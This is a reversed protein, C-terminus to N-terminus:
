PARLELIARTLERRVRYVTGADSPNQLVERVAGELMASARDAADYRGESRAKAIASRLQALYEYDEVGERWAEWRRSPVIAEGSLDVGEPKGQPGYVLGYRGSLWSFDDWASAGPEPDSYTWIGCGRDGRHFARWMHLRFYALPPKGKSPRDCDYSWVEAIRKRANEEATGYRAGFVLDRPCWIDLFPTIRRLQDGNKLGRSNAFIRLKPDVQEKLFRALTEFEPALSEDFPYMAFDDYDLGRAKLHDVWRTVWEKVYDLYSRGNTARLGPVQDRKSGLGWYFLFMEGGTYRDLAADHKTFDILLKGNRDLTPMPLASSWFLVDVNIYHARLDAIAEAQASKTVDSREIYHYAFTKLTTRDPFQIPAVTIRGQMLETPVDTGAADVAHWDIAFGYAAPNLSAAHVTLWLQAPQGPPIVFGDQPVRILADGTRGTGGRADVFVPTRLTVFSEAAVTSGDEARLPTLAPRVRLPAVDGNFLTVAASEYEGQWLFLDLRNLDASPDATTSGGSAVPASPAVLLAADPGDAISLTSMPNAAQVLLRRGSRTRWDTARAAYIASEVGQWGDVRHLPAERFSRQLDDLVTGAATAGPTRAAATSRELLLSTVARERLAPLLNAVDDRAFANGPDFHITSPDDNGRFVQVEDLFVFDGDPEILLLVWRGRARLNDIPIVRPQARVGVSDARSQQIGLSDAAGVLHFSTNDDSVLVGVTAPYFVNARGGGNTHLRVGGIPTSVGLDILVTVAPAPKSWGVTGSRLWDCGATEGDTLQVADGPDKCGAYNPAPSMEYPRHLAVNDAPPEASAVFPSSAVLLVAFRRWRDLRRLALRRAGRLDSRPSRSVPGPGARRSQNM